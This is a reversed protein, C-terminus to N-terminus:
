RGPALEWVGRPSEDAPKLRGDLRLRHAAWRTDYQWTYLLDGSSELEWRHDRWILRCIDVLPASGGLERLAETVWGDLHFKTAM